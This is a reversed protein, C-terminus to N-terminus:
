SSCIYTCVCGGVWGCVCVCVCVCVVWGWVCGVGGVCVCVVWGCGCVCVCLIDDPYHAWHVGTVLEEGEGILRALALKFMQVDEKGPGVSLYEVFIAEEAIETRKKYKPKPPHGQKIVRDIRELNEKDLSTPQEDDTAFDHGKRQQKKRTKPTKGKM